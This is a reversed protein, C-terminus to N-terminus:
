LFYVSECVKFILPKEIGSGEVHFIGKRLPIPLPNLLAITVEVPSQSVPTDALKIKIDPKRVRFDDQAFFEYETNEVTAFCSINFAAQDRLKKYYEDFSVEM